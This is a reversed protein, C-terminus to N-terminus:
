RLTPWRLWKGGSGSRPISHRRWWFRRREGLGFSLARRVRAGWRERGLAERGGRRKRGRLIPCSWPSQTLPIVCRNVQQIRPSCPGQRSAPGTPLGPERAGGPPAGQLPTWTHTVPAARGLAAGACLAADHPRGTGPARTATSAARRAHCKMEPIAKVLSRSCGHVM